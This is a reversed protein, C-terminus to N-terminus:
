IEYTGLKTTDVSGSYKIKNTIDGDRTDVASIGNLIMEKTINYKYNYTQEKYKNEITPFLLSNGCDNGKEVDKQSVKNYEKNCIKYEGNTIYLYYKYDGDVNTIVINGTIDNGNDYNIESLSVSKSKGNSPLSIKSSDIINSAMLDNQLSKAISIGSEIFAQKKAKDMVGLITPVSILLIIALIAIVTLLEILTFGKKKM